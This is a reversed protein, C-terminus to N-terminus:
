EHSGVYELELSKMERFSKLEKKLEQLEAKVESLEEAMTCHSEILLRLRIQTQESDYHQRFTESVPFDFFQGELLERLREHNEQSKKM